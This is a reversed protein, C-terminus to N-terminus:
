ELEQSDRDFRICVAIHFDLIHFQLVRKDGKPLTRTKVQVLRGQVDILDYAKTGPQPLTDGYVAGVEGQIAGSTRPVGRRAFEGQVRAHLVFLGALSLEDLETM